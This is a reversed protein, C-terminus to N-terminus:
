FRWQMRAFVSRVVLTGSVELNDAFELHRPSILNQGVVSFELSEGPRWGLRSDVRTWAPVNALPSTWAASADWTLNRRLNLHARVQPQHRPSDGSPQYIVSGTASADPTTSMNLFSYGSIIKLRSSVNWNLSVEGGYDRGSADFVFAEPFVLHPLASDASLFPDRPEVSELNRYYSLFGTLDVSFRRGIRNRYGTEFDKLTESKPNPDGSLTAIGFDGGGLPVIATNSRADVDIVAPQRIARSASAWLTQRASPTWVLQASPEYEFGTYANHELKSGATLTLSKAITIEDQLFMAALSDNRSPPSINASYEFLSDFDANDFRYDLGWVVDHRSGVAMRHQFEVDITRHYEAVGADGVRHVYDYYLQLSTRSGNALTHEWRALVDALANTVPDSLSTRLPIDPFVAIVSEDGSTRMVDAQVSLTDRQSLDWDTRFGGQSGHWGDAGPRRAPTVSNDIDFYRAFARYSGNPGAAGGYQALSDAATQTGGGAGILGGHTKRSDMTIVDIVGNVANAGWVTGGPGRIVEIRDIDELPVNQQDWFVGSFSNSYVSRGDILVLVKNSYSANFGRISIAWRNADIRAVDVGPAMRLLDPINTAGSRHIDEQTIVFVAAGTKALIQEKKSVSTVELNMLDEVSLASLDPPGSTQGSAIQPM